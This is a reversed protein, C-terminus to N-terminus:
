PQAEGVLEYWFSGTKMRFRAGLLHFVILTNSNVNHTKKYHCQPIMTFSCSSNLLMTVFKVAFYLIGGMAFM